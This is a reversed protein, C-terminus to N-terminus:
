SLRLRRTLLKHTFRLFRNTLPGVFGEPCSSAIGAYGGADIFLHGFQEARECRVVVVWFCWLFGGIHHDHQASQCIPKVHIYLSLDFCRSIYYADFWWTIKASRRMCVALHAM